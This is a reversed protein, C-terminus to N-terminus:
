LCSSLYSSSNLFRSPRAWFLEDLEKPSDALDRGVLLRDELLNEFRNPLEADGVDEDRGTRLDQAEVRPLDQPGKAAVRAGVLDLEERREGTEHRGRAAFV